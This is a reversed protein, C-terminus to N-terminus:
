FGHRIAPITVNLVILLSRLSKVLTCERIGKWLPWIQALINVNLVVSPRTELQCKPPFKRIKDMMALLKLGHTCFRSKQLHPTKLQFYIGLRTWKEGSSIVRPAKKFMIVAGPIKGLTKVGLISFSTKLFIMDSIKMHLWFM